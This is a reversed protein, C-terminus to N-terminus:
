NKKRRILYVGLLGMVTTAIVIVYIYLDDRNMPTIKNNISTNNDSNFRSWENFRNYANVNNSISLKEDDTLLNYTELLIPYYTHCLGENQHYDNMHLYYDIYNLMIYDDVEVYSIDIYSISNINSIYFYSYKNKIIGTIPSIGSTSMYTDSLYVSPNGNSASVGVIYGPTSTYNSIGDIDKHYTIYSNVQPNVVVEHNQVDSLDIRKTKVDVYQVEISELIPPYLSTYSRLKICIEDDQYRAVSYNAGRTIHSSNSSINYTDLESGYGTNSRYSGSYTAAVRTIAINDGFSNKNTKLLWDNTQPNNSSGIMLGKNSVYEINTANSYSWVVGNLSTEGSLTTIGGTSTFTYTYTHTNTYSEAKASYIPGDIGM